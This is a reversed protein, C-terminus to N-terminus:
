FLAAALSAGLLPVSLNDDLVSPPFLEIAACAASLALVKPLLHPTKTVDFCVAPFLAFWNFLALTAAAGGLLFALSGVYSKDKSFPWKGTRKGFRRGVIDALGDGVAMQAVAVVGAPSKRWLLTSLVLVVCYLLPGGLVEKSNGTRSIATVIDSKADSNGARLVRMLSILPVCVAVCRAYRSASFFPWVLVFLPASGCHIIKRSVTSPVLGADKAVTWVHVWAVAAAASVTSWMLDRPLAPIAKYVALFTNTGPLCAAPPSGRFALLAAASLLTAAVAPGRRAPRQRVAEQVELVAPTALVQGGRSEESDAEDVFRTEFRVRADHHAVRGGHHAVVAETENTMPMNEVAAAVSSRISDERRWAQFPSAARRRSLGSWTKARKVARRTSAAQLALARFVPVVALCMGLRM